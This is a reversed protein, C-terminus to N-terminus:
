HLIVDKAQDCDPGDLVSSQGQSQLLMFILSSCILTFAQTMADDGWM